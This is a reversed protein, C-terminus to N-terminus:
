VQPKRDSAADHYEASPRLASSLTDIDNSIRRIADYQEFALSDRLVHREFDYHSSRMLRTGLSLLLNYISHGRVYLYANHRNLGKQRYYEENIIMHDYDKVARNLAKRIRNLLPLGNNAEEGKQFQVSICRKFNERSFFHGKNRECELMLLMPRYVIESYDKLFRRFDFQANKVRREYAAQLRSAYAYHNEWSYTYTQLIGRDARINEDLLYRLDSDICVFFKQSLHKRYKLCQTCGTTLRGYENATAPLFKYKGPRYKLLLPQWFDIDDWAEVHVVSDVGYLKASAEFRRACMAYFAEKRLKNKHM